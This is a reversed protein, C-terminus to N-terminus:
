IEKDPADDQIIPKSHSSDAGRLRMLLRNIQPGMRQLEEHHAASLKELITEGRSTLALQVQRRDERGPVRRVYREAVLRDTLGVASHHRIQLREALEGVTIRDRGPFGKIALMAQHHQPTLGAARAANESFHQFQRLAYRFEALAEYEAKTLTQKSAMLKM